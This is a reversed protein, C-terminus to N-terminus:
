NDPMFDNVEHKLNIKMGDPVIILKECTTVTLLYKM